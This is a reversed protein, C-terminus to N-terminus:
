GGGDISTTTAQDDSPGDTPPCELAGEVLHVGPLTELLGVADASVEATIRYSAMFQDPSLSGIMDPPDAFARQFEQYTAERDLFAYPELGLSALEDRVGQIQEQTALPQLFVFTTPTGCRDEV